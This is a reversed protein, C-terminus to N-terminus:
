DSVIAGDRDANTLGALRAMDHQGIVTHGEEILNAKVSRTALWHEEFTM